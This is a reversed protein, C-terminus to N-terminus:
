LLRPVVQNRMPRGHASQRLPPAAGEIGDEQYRPLPVDSGVQPGHGPETRSESAVEGPVPCPMGLLLRERHGPFEPISSRMVTKPHYKRNKGIMVCPFFDTM